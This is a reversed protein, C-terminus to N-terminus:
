KSKIKNFIHILVATLVFVVVPGFNRYVDYAGLPILCMSCLNIVIPHYIYISGSEVNGTFSLLREVTSDTNKYFLAFLLFISVLAILTGAYINRSGLKGFAVILNYECFSLLISLFFTFSLLIITAKHSFRSFFGIIRDKYVNILHGLTFYPIGVFLFNRFVTYPLSGGFLLGSYTGFVIDCFILVPCLVYLLKSLNHKFLFHAAVLTYILAHLYWLHGGFLSRNLFVLSLLNQISLTDKIYHLVNEGIYATHFTQWLFYVATAFLFLRITKKIQIIQTAKRQVSSYFFGTIMFFIPVAIRTVLLVYEGGEFTVPIHICVVLFACICKLIDLGRNRATNRTQM